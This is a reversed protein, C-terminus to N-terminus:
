NFILDFIWDSDNWGRIWKSQNPNFIQNPDVWAQPNFEQNSKWNIQILRSDANKWFPKFVHKSILPDYWELSGWLISNKLIKRSTGLIFISIFSTPSLLYVKLICSFFDEKNIKCLKKLVFITSLCLEEFFLYTPQTSSIEMFSWRFCIFCLTKSETRCYSYGSGWGIFNMFFNKFPRFSHNFARWPRERDKWAGRRYTTTGDSKETFSNSRYSLEHPKSLSPTVHNNNWRELIGFMRQFAVTMTRRKWYIDNM